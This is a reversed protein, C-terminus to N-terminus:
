AGETPYIRILIEGKDAMATYRAGSVEGTTYGNRRVMSLLQLISADRPTDVGLPLRAGTRPDLIVDCVLCYRASLVRHKIGKGSWSRSVTWRADLYTTEENCTPCRVLTRQTRKGM